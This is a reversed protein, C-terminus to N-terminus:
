HNKGGFIAMILCFEFVKSANIIIKVQLRVKPFFPEVQCVPVNRLEANHKMDNFWM